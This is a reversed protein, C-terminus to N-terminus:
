PGAPKEPGEELFPDPAAALRAERWAVWTRKLYSALLGAALLAGGLTASVFPEAGDGVAFWALCLPVLILGLAIWLRSAPRARMWAAGGALCAALVLFDFLWYLKRDCYFFRLEGEPALTQFRFLKGQTTFQGLPPPPTPFESGGAAIEPQVGWRLIWALTNSVGRPRPHLTGGFRLYAYEEPAYLDFEIKNVAVGGLVGPSKLSLRGLAGLKDSEEGLPQHYVLDLPFPQGPAGAALKVLTGGDKRQFPSVAAGNVTLARIVTKDPLALELYQEGRTEVWFLARVTLRREQSVVATIRLLDVVTATLAVPVHRTLKLTLSRAPQYYRFSLYLNSQRLEAPLSAAEIPELNEAQPAIELAGEKRVTVYGQQSKVEEARVDAIPVDQPKEPELGKLDEEHEILVALPGIVKDQLTLEWVSRGDKEEVRKKEKLAAFPPVHIREDLARPISFRLKDVAAYEIFYKLQHSVKLGADTVTAVHYGTVSIETKRRELSLKVSAPSQTYSYALPLDFDPPLQALLGSAALAQVNASAAKAREITTLKFAKPASVGFLGKDQQTGVVQVPEVTAEGPAASGPATFRFPLRFAGIAQNKLNVTLLKQAAEAAVQFDEVTQKDGVSAVEWRAPFRLQASFIGVKSIQYDVIGFLVDEDLGLSVVTATQSQIQPSVTEIRLKLALPHALYRFGALLRPTALGQPLERPDVQSLGSSSEVRVRLSPEGAVAVYGDERLTNLTAPFPVDMESPTQELIREFRLTLAYTDKVASHLRVNLQGQETTWERVNDGKVSLLRMDAPLRVRFTDTEHREIKFALATNLRLIREGLEAFMTQSAIVLAEGKEIKDEPPMWTVTVQNSNGVFALLRTADQEPKSITAAMKPTVEVRLDKEPILLELRSVATPPIGFGLTRKGPTAEIRASFALTLSYDGPKPVILVYGDGKPAFVAAPDSTQVTEVAVNKLPLPVEVWSKGLSRVAYTVEFRAATEGAKGVYSGGTIAADAPPKVEDPPKPPQAAQWLKLFEEYPLFVGRGEKEFTEKLKEYPVYVTRERLLLKPPEEKKEEGAWSRCAPLSFSLVLLWATARIM